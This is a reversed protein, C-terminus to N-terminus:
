KGEDQIARALDRAPAESGLFRLIRSPGSEPGGKAFVFCSPRVMEANLFPQHEGFDIM